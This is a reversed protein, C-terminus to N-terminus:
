IKPNGKSSSCRSIWQRKRWMDVQIEYIYLEFCRFHNTDTDISNNNTVLELIQSAWVIKM